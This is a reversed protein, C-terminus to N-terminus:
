GHFEATPTGRVGPECAFLAGALPQAGLEAGGMGHRATTIYLTALDPGGFCCNTVKPCPLEVIRDVTGDPRWRVVCGGDWRANWLHGEADITSGDAHGPAPVRCHERRNSITGSAGDFDYAWLADLTDGFYFTRDDPSWAFTNSIAFPGDMRTATGDPDVRWLAGKRGEIPVDGGDPALNNEMTGYWLRGHRDCKGDNSRNGPKDAEPACLRRTAGTAPDFLDIGSASAIVLGGGRRPALTSVMEPMSWSRREGTAPDLRHVRRSPVDTWYLAGEAASWAPVEGLWDRGDDVARVEVM